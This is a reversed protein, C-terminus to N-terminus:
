DSWFTARSTASISSCSRHVPTRVNLPLQRICTGRQAIRSPCPSANTRNHTSNSRNRCLGRLRVTHWHPLPADATCSRCSPSPGLIPRSERAFTSAMAASTRPGRLRLGRRARYAVPRAWTGEANLLGGGSFLRLAFAHKQIYLVLYNWM